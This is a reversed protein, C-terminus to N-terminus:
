ICHFIIIDNHGKVDKSNFVCLEREVNLIKKKGRVLQRALIDILM